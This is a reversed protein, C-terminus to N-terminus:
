RSCSIACAVAGAIASLLVLGCGLLCGRNSREVAETTVWAQQLLEAPFEIEEGAKVRGAIEKLQAANLYHDTVLLHKTYSEDDDPIYGCHLCPTWAGHKFEGCKLCVAVTM